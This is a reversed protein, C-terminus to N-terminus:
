AVRRKRKLLGGLSQLDNHLIRQNPDQLKVWGAVVEEFLTMCFKVGNFVFFLGTVKQHRLVEPCCCWIKQGHNFILVPAKDTGAAKMVQHLARTEGWSSKPEDFKHFRTINFNKSNKCEICLPKPMSMQFVQGLFLDGPDEKSAAFHGGSLPTRYCDKVDLDFAERMIAVVKREFRKGKRRGGGPKM